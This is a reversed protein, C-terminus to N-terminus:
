EGTEPQEDEVKEIEWNEWNEGPERDMSDDEDREAVPTDDRDSSVGTGESEMSNDECGVFAMLAILLLASLYKKM